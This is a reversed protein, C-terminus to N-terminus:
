ERKLDSQGASGQFDTRRLQRWVRDNGERAHALPARGRGGPGEGSAESPGHSKECRRELFMEVAGQGRKAVAAEAARTPRVRAM